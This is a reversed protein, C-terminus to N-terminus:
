FNYGTTETTIYEYMDVVAETVHFKPSLGKLIFILNYFYNVAAISESFEFFIKNGNSKILLGEEKFEVNEMISMTEDLKILLLKRDNTKKYFDDPIKGSSGFHIRMGDIEIEFLTHTGVMVAPGPYTSTYYGSNDLRSEIKLSYLDCKKIVIGDRNFIEQKEEIAETLM